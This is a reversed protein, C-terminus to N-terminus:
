PWQWTVHGIEPVEKRKEYTKVFILADKKESEFRWFAVWCDPPLQLTVLSKWCEYLKNLFCEKRRCVFKFFGQSYFYLISWCSSLIHRRGIQLYAQISIPSMSFNSCFNSANHKLQWCTSQRYRKKLYRNLPLITTLLPCSKSSTCSAAWKLWWFLPNSLNGLM